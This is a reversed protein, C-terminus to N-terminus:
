IFALASMGVKLLDGLANGKAQEKKAALYQQWVIFGVVLAGLIAILAYVNM